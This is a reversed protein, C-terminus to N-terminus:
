HQLRASFQGSKGFVIVVNVPEEPTLNEAKSALIDKVSKPQGNDQWSVDFRNGQYERLPFGTSCESNPLIYGCAAFERTKGVYIRVEHLTRSTENLFILRKIEISNSREPLSCSTIGTTLLTVLLMSLYIKRKITM